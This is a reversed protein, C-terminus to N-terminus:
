TTLLLVYLLVWRQRCSRMEFVSKYGEEYTGTLTTSILIRIAYYSCFSVQMQYLTVDLMYGNPFGCRMKFM